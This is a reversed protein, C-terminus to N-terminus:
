GERWPDHPAYAFRDAVPLWPGDDETPLRQHAVDPRRPLELRDEHVVQWRQEQEDHGPMPKSYRKIRKRLAQNQASSSSSARRRWDAFSKKALVLSKRAKGRRTEQPTKDTDVVRSRRTPTSPTSLDYAAGRQGREILQQIADASHTHDEAEPAKEVPVSNRADWRFDEKIGGVSTSTQSLGIQRRLEKMRRQKEREEMEREIRENEERARRRLLENRTTEDPMGGPFAQLVSSIPQVTAGKSHSASRSLVSPGRDLTVAGYARSRSKSRDLNFNVSSSMSESRRPGTAGGLSADRLQISALREVVQKGSPRRKVSGIGSGRKGESSRMLGKELMDDGGSVGDNGRKAASLLRACGRRTSEAEDRRKRILSRAKKGRPGFVLGLLVNIVGIWFLLWFAVLPFGDQYHALLSVATFAQVFGLPATGHSPGLLSLHKSVLRAHWRGLTM